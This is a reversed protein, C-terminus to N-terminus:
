HLILLEKSKQTILDWIEKSIEIIYDYGSFHNLEKNAKICRGAVTSSIAPTVM